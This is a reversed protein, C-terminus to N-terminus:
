IEEGEDFTLSEAVLSFMIALIWLVFLVSLGICLYSFIAFHLPFSLYFNTTSVIFGLTGIIIKTIIDQLFIMLSFFLFSLLLLFYFFVPSYFTKTTSTAYTDSPDAVNVLTIIHEERPNLDTLTYSTLTTNTVFVGDIHVSASTTAGSYLWSWNIYTSGTNATLNTVGAGATGILLLLVLLGIAAGIKM